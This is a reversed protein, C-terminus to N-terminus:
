IFSAYGRMSFGSIGIKDSDIEDKSKFYDILNQIDIASQEIVKHM